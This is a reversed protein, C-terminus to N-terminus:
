PANKNRELFICLKNLDKERSITHKFLTSKGDSTFIAGLYKYETCHSVNVRGHNLQLIIPSREEVSSHFAMFETKDENIVMGSKNCWNVFVGLKECLRQRSTALIMTDDMLMLLHLWNLFGDPASRNKM